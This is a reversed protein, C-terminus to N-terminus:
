GGEARGWAEEFGAPPAGRRRSRTATAYQTFRTRLERRARPAIEELPTQHDRIRVPVSARLSPFTREAPVLLVRAATRVADSRMTWIAEFLRQRESAGPQGPLERAAICATFGVADCVLVWERRLPHGKGLPVEIPRAPVQAPDRFDALVVALEAQAALARWRREETRYNTVRQFAALVVGARSQFEYEDELARSLAALTWKPVRAPEADPLRDELETFASRGGPAEHEGTAPDTSSATM